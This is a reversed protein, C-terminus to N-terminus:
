ARQGTIYNELGRIMHEQDAIVSNVADGISIVGIVKEGEVVPLHRIKKGTMIAMCEDITQEKTIYYVQTTMVDRVLTEPGRGQLIGRRAYDRESFIGVLKDNELVLLAGVNKEAMQELAARLTTHPAVYWVQSGKQQLISKVTTTM